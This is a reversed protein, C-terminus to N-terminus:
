RRAGSFAPSTASPGVSKGTVNGGPGYFTTTGGTTTSTGTNNGRSDYYRVTGDSQPAATGISNGRSDYFRTQPEATAFAIAVVLWALALMVTLVFTQTKM